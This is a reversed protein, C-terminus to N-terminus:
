GTKGGFKAFAIFAATFAAIMFILALDSLWQRRGPRWRRLLLSNGVVSVSSMAMALGALEPRLVLGLGVFVRAAIPIGIANYFLSFFLNQKIKRMTTRSLDIAAAVDGIDDRMLVIGGTEMAVDTGGGMAIGLDAQALAPADNIGDGVMIVRRGGDQLRKVERAKDEPRVEALVHEIGAERAVAKATRENDGTMMFVELGFNKMQAVAGAAADDITDAVAILGLLSREGALIMVSKGDEELRRIGADLAATEPGATEAVMRPSGLRYAQGGINGTVGQGAVARFDTVEPRAAGEADARRIIAEALPHESSRELAAAVAIVDKADGGGLAIVDTVEPRGRTLTGTKDFVIVDARGAAELPGGGKVLIGLTAGVGTGVMVATPTALGLACPCAIVLVATGALIAFSLSAGLFFYWAVFTLLAVAIVTPVFKESVRDAFAQIPARSGQAEEVLRVIQALVTDAGIKDTRFEFSGTRNVTAGIVRDGTKKEIPLSEGTVMSEDVTSSGNVVTGDTPVKEGPRVLVIDGIVVEDIPTDTAKGDRVIRATKPTLDMLKRIADSTRGRARAELWKGLLVFSILFVATEFYLEPIMEGGTGVLSAHRVAYLVYNALSYFYAASTGVAILSDMNFMRLRLGSWAGRYFNAGLWFQVPTALLLSVLGIRPLFWDRGPLPAFGLAMFILFPISFALSILFKRRFLATERDRHTRERNMDGATIPEASYGSKKVAAVLTALDTEDPDFKVHAKGAAFNVNAEKVGATRRLGHEVLSACSVCDMGGILLDSQAVPPRGKEPHTM